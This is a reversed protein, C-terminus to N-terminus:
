TKRRCEFAQVLEWGSGDETRKLFRWSFSNPRIDSFVWEIDRGGLQQGSLAIEDGRRQAVFTRVSGQVPGMWTSRWADIQPDFFRVSTGYEYPPAGNDQEGRAPVIWVDQMARGDLIWGFHWEGGEERALEGDKFWSVKLDWAGAFQGFLKLEAAHTPDPEVAFLVDSLPHSTV